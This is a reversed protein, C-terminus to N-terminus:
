SKPYLAGGYIKVCTGTPVYAYEQGNEKNGTTGLTPADTPKDANTYACTLKDSGCVSVDRASVGFCKEDIPPMSGGEALASGILASGVLAPQALFAAVATAIMLSTKTM